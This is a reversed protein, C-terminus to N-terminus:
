YRRVGVLRVQGPKLNGLSLKRGHFDLTSSGGNFDRVRVFEQWPLQPVLGLKDIAIDITVPQDKDSTNTVAFLVRDTRGPEGRAPLQWMAIAPNGPTGVPVFKTDKAVVGWDLMAPTLEAGVGALEQRVRAVDTPNEVRIGFYRATHPQLDSVSVTNGAADLVPIPDVEPLQGNRNDKGRLETVSAPGTTLGLKAFDVKLVPNKAAKGDYNFAMVMVRGPMQWYAVLVEPDASTIATNRWHPVYTLREDNLGFDILKDGPKYGDWGYWNCDHFRTWDYFGRWVKGRKVPDTIQNISMWTLPLGYNQPTNLARMREAPYNDVWDRTSADTIFAWEGDLGAGVWPYAMLPFCNSSHASLGGPALGHEEQLAYLRMMLRRMNLGNFTPQTRGDPLIYAMGNQVGSWAKIFFIDWYISRLGGETFARSALWLTYDRQVEGLTNEAWEPAFYSSVRGDSTPAGYDMLALSNHVWAMRRAALPDFPQVAKVKADAQVKFEGWVREWDAPAAPASLWQTGDYKRGTVTDTYQKHPGAFTGDEANITARWGKPFPKFPTANYTFTLTRAETLLYPKGIINNRLVVLSHVTSLSRHDTPVASQNSNVSSQESNVSCTERVVEHAPVEDDPVWGQDSDAWWLLGRRENGIWVDPYFSGVTMGSGGRGLELTSWLRGTKDVPLLKAALSAFNGGPGMCNMAEADQGSLPFEIRLADVTVSDKGAPAYTLNVLVMGDQEIMGTTAFVLGAGTAEGKFAHRWPKEETFRLKGTLDIRQEKGGIVAVIRAPAALVPQGQSTIAVPLGLANLTYTRGWLSVSEGESRQGGDEAKQGRVESKQRRIAEFPPIVREINGLKNNWWAGFVKAEDLKEFRTTVPGLTKGDATELIGEVSYKGEKLAPLQLLRTYQCYDPKDITGEVVPKVEGERTVKYRCQKVLEPKDLYYADAQIQFNNRVPNFTGSLPFAVTSPAYKVWNEPYGLTFFAYYRYLVRGATLGTSGDGQTVLYYLGGKNKGLDRPLKENVKFEATKGPEVTLTQEKKILDETTKADKWEEIQALVQIDVPKETPNYIRFKVAAVGDKLGPLDDMTVQVAPTNEALTMTPWGSPDFYSSSMPVAAQFFGPIHNFALLMKWTDGARNPGVLEFDKAPMVVEAEWWRGGLPASGPETLRTATKFHPGWNRFMQGVSVRALDGDSGFCSIFFKYTNDPTGGVPLNAGQPKLNFEMGDDFANVTGPARGSVRPKYGPMIWTRCAVYLNDADWALYYTTPRMILLNGGPNQSALGGIALAERWEAPDITGDITPAHTMRPIVYNGGKGEPLAAACVRVAMSGLVLVLMVWRGTRKMNMGKKETKM